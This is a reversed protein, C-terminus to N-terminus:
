REMIVEQAASVGRGLDVPYGLIKLSMELAAIGIIIDMEEVAGLHGFRFTEGSLKGQGGAIEVGFRKRMVSLLASVEINAPKVVATVTMSAHEDGVLLELGLARIAARTAAAMRRHRAFAEDRGEAFYLALGKQLAVIQSLAPTFPTQGIELFDDAKQLSFYFKKAAATQSVKWAREGVSLMALGPPLMLAKQSGTVCVDIGWEDVPINVAGMSSVTDVILLAPHDGRARSVAAVDNMLGTSSENHVVTIAAISHERDDRLKRELAAYDFPRGWEAELCEVTIDYSAAIKAFREGFAGNVLCLVRRGPSLFNVIATEMGGTGSTSLVFLRGETQFVKKLAATQEEILTKFRAGRHNFMETSMALAVEPPVPTPGPILLYEKRM